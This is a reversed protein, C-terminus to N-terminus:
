GAEEIGLDPAGADEDRPRFRLAPVLGAGALAQLSRDLHEDLEIVGAPPHLLVSVVCDDCHHTDQMACLSCDINM